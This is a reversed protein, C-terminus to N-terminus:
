NVSVPDSTEDDQPTVTVASDDVLLPDDTDSSARARDIVDSTTLNLTTPAPPSSVPQPVNRSSGGCAYLAACVALPISLSMLKIVKM